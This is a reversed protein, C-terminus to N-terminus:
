FCKECINRLDCSIKDAFLTEVHKEKSFYCAFICTTDFADHIVCQTVCFTNYVIYAYGFDFKYTYVNCIFYHTMCLMNDVVYVNHIVSQTIHLTNYTYVNCIFCHTMCLMNDVVYM